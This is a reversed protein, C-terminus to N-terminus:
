QELHEYFLMDHDMECLYPSTGKIKGDCVLMHLALYLPIDAPKFRSGYLESFSSKGFQSLYSRIWPRYVKALFCNEPNEIDKLFDILDEDQLPKTYFDLESKLL